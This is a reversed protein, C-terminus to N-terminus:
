IWNSLELYDKTPEFQVEFQNIGDEIELNEIKFKDNLLLEKQFQHIFPHNIDLIDDKNIYFEVEAAFLPYTSDKDSTINSFENISLILDKVVSMSM